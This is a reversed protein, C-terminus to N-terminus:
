DGYIDFDFHKATIEAYTGNELLATIAANIRAKLDDSGKRLGVGTGRGLIDPDHAATGKLECCDQGEDSGLFGSLALSDALTADIRGSVLDQNVEDFTQYERIKADPYHKQAYALHITSTQLGIIKDSLGEPSADMELEKAGVVYAPTQYYKNSFDITKEREATISMSAMIADIKEGTLAPIVGEWPVPTIVCEAKIEACLAGIFDIEWGSWNGNADPTAFPPYPEAAVGIRLEEALAASGAGCLAVAAALTKLNTKM